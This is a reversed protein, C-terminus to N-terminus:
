RKQYNLSTTPLSNHQYKRVLSVAMETLFYFTPIFILTSILQYKLFPLANIYSTLLGTPTRPYMGSLLWVGFNTWLYFFINASLGTLTLSTSKVMKKTTLSHHITIQSLSSMIKNILNKSLLAPILFGSWTFIFINTNGIILDSFLIILFVTWFSQKKGIYFSTLILATTVLEFNPGFDFLVREGFALIFMTALLLYSTTSSKHQRKMIFQLKYGARRRLYIILLKPFSIYDGRQFISVPFQDNGTLPLTNGNSM